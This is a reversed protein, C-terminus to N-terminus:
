VERVGQSKPVKDTEEEFYSLRSPRRYQCIGQVFGSIGLDTDLRGVKLAAYCVKKCQKISTFPGKLDLEECLQQWSQLGDLNKGLLRDYELAMCRNWMKRWTKSGTKWKRQSALRNFEDSASADPNPKFGPFDTFFARTNAAM